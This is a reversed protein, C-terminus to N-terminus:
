GGGITRTQVCKFEHELNHDKCHQEWAPTWYIPEMDTKIAAFKWPQHDNELQGKLEVWKPLVETKSDIIDIYSERTYDDVYLQFVVRSGATFGLDMWMRHCPRTSRTHAHDSLAKQRQKAITCAPCEPDDGKKLGLMKRLKDFHLHGYAWHSELLQKGFDQSKASIHKGVPLGFFTTSLIEKPQEKPSNLSSSHVTQSRYYYLGGIEKGSFINAKNKDRLHVEGKRLIMDCDKNLFQYAPMLKKACSPLFLVNNCEVVHNYDLSRIRVTGVCPSTVVGGGVSVVESNHRVSGPVFDNIDNTVFRNTGTDACWEYQGPVPAVGDKNLHSSALVFAQCTHHSPAATATFLFSAALLVFLLGLNRSEIQIRYGSFAFAAGLFAVGCALVGQPSSAFAAAVMTFFSFIAGLPTLWAFSFVPTDEWAAGEEQFAQEQFASGEDQIPTSPITKFYLGM